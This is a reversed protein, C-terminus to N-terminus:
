WVCSVFVPRSCFGDSVEAFGPNELRRCQAIEPRRELGSPQDRFRLNRLLRKATASSHGPAFRSRLRVDRLCITEFNPQLVGMNRFCRLFNGGGAGSAADFAPVM